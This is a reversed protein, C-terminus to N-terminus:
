IIPFTIYIGTGMGLKSRIIIHYREDYILKLREKTNMLGIQESYDFDKKLNERIQNLKEKSIGLGNDVVAIKIQNNSEIIKIKIISKGDKEKIGHYISNEILPQFMLKMVKHSLLDNNYEWVVYFKDRYRIKLIDIYCMTNEIEEKLTIIENPNSLSYKLIQSLNEIMKNVENPKGTLALTKLYITELTNFLFHPNIQSQLALLEMAQMKYKKESLQIKLYNQEMYNKLINYTIYSYEDKYEPPLTPFVNTSKASDIINIIERINTYNRKTIYYTLLIVILFSLILLSLTIKLLMIPIRYLYKRPVISIYRLNYEMSKLESIISNSKYKNIDMSNTFNSNSNQCILNNNEDLILIKQQPITTSANLFNEIYDLYINLVLVGDSKGSYLASVKKYITLIKIPNAEFSYPKLERVEAWALKDNPTNEFRDFWERDYFNNLSTIGGSTTLFNKAPNNFYVYISQIYPKSYSAANLFSEIMNLQWIDKLSYLSTNLIRKLHLTVDTNIGFTLYIYNMESLILEINENNQKLIAENNKNIEDKVYRETIIISFSGLVM